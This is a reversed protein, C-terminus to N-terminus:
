AESPDRLVQGLFALVRDAWEDPAATLGGVHDAGPVEWVEVTAPSAAQLHAAALREDTVHGATILLVPRPAM